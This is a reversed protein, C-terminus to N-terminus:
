ISREEVVVGSVFARMVISPGEGSVTRVVTEGPRHHASYVTREGRRDKIVIRVEQLDPGPPVVITVETSRAGQPQTGDDTVEPVPQPGKSVVLTVGSGRGVRKDPAPSQGIVYGIPVTAHYRGRERQVLLKSQRLVARARDVSMDRVDPVRAWPSGSSLTLRVVRGLKVKRGPAPDTSIVTDEPQSESPKEATVESALGASKLLRVAEKSTYGVTKPVQTEKPATRAWLWMTLHYTVFLFLIISLL